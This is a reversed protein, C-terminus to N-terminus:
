SAKMCRKIHQVSDANSMCSVNKMNTEDVRYTTHLVMSITILLCFDTYLHVTQDSLLM